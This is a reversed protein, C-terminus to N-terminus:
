PNFEEFQPFLNKTTIELEDDLAGLEFLVDRFVEPHGPPFDWDEFYMTSEALASWIGESAKYLGDPVENLQMEYIDATSKRNCQEDIPEAARVCIVRGEESVFTVEETEILIQVKM